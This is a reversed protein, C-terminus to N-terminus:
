RRSLHCDGIEFETSDQISQFNTIQVKKLTM